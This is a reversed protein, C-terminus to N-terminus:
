QRGKGRGGKVGGCQSDAEGGKREGEKEERGERGEGEDEERGRGNEERVNM